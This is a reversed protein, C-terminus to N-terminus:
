LVQNGIIDSPQEKTLTCYNPHFVIFNFVITFTNLKITKPGKIYSPLLGEIIQKGRKKNQPIFDLSSKSNSKPFFAM